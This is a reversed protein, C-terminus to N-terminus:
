HNWDNLADVTATVKKRCSAKLEGYDQELAKLEEGDIQALLDLDDQRRQEIVEGTQDPAFLSELRHLLQEGAELDRDPESPLDNEARIAQEVEAALSDREAAVKRFFESAPEDDLFEAADRYNDASHKLAVHLDNLAAQSESRILAM